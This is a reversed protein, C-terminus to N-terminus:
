FYGAQVFRQLLETEVNIRRGIHKLKTNRCPMYVQEQCRCNGHVKLCNQKQWQRSEFLLSHRSAGSNGIMKAALSNDEPIITKLFFAFKYGLLLDKWTIPCHLACQATENYSSDCQCFVYRRVHAGLSYESWDACERLRILIEALHLKSLWPHLKKM